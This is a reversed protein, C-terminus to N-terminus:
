IVLRGARRVGRILWLVSETLILLTRKNQAHPRGLMAAAHSLKGILPAREDNEIIRPLAFLPLPSWARLVCLCVRPPELNLGISQKPQLTVYLHSCAQGAVSLNSMPVYTKQPSCSIRRVHCEGSTQPHRRPRKQDLQLARPGVLAFFHAAGALGGAGGADHEGVRPVPRRDDGAPEDGERHEAVRLLSTKLIPSAPPRFALNALAVREYVCM